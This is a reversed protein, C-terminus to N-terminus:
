KECIAGRGRLQKGARRGDGIETIRAEGCKPIPPSLSRQKYDKDFAQWAGIHADNM